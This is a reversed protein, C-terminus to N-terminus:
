VAAPLDTGADTVSKSKALYSGNITPTQSAETLTRPNRLCGVELVQRSVFSDKVKWFGRSGSVWGGLTPCSRFAHRVLEWSM